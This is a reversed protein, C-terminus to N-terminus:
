LTFSHHIILITLIFIIFQHTCCVFRTLGTKILSIYYIWFNSELSLTSHMTVLLQQWKFFLINAM